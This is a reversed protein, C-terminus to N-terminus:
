TGPKDKTDLSLKYGAAEAEGYNQHTVWSNAAAEVSVLWMASIKFGNLAYQITPRLAFAEGGHM